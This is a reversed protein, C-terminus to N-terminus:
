KWGSVTSKCLLTSPFFDFFRGFQHHFVTINMGHSGFRCFLDGLLFVDLDRGNLFITPVLLVILEREVWISGIGRIDGGEIEVQPFRELM